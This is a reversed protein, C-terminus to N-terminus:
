TGRFSASWGSWQAVTSSRGKWPRTVFSALLAEAGTTAEPKARHSFGTDFTLQGPASAGSKWPVQSTVRAGIPLPDSRAVAADRTVCVGCQVGFSLM